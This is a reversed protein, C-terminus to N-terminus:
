PEDDLAIPEVEIEGREVGEWCTACLRMRSEPDVKQLPGQVLTKAQGDLVPRGCRECTAVAQEGTVERRQALLEEDM